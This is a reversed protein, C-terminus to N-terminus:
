CQVLDIICVLCLFVFTHFFKMQVNIVRLKQGLTNKYLLWIQVAFLRVQNSKCSQCILCSFKSSFLTSSIHFRLFLLRNEREERAVHLWPLQWSFMWGTFAISQGSFMKPPRRPMTCWKPEAGGKIYSPAWYSLFLSLFHQRCTDNQCLVSWKRMKEASAHLEGIYADSCFLIYYRM